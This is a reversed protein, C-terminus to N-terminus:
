PCATLSKLLFDISAERKPKIREMVDPYAVPAKLLVDEVTRGSGVLRDGLGLGTMLNGIKNARYPTSFMAFNKRYLISLIMGHYMSTIINGAHAFYGLWEFPGLTTMNVDSWSNRFGVSILKKGTVRKYDLVQSVMAKDFGGYVLVYNEEKPQIAFSLLDVLFTPDLVIDAPRNCLESIVRASNEDRVSIYSFRQFDNRLEAPVAKSDVISGFSAAYSLIRGANLARSFYVPDCGILSTSCNWVEDSGIVIGDFRMKSLQSKWFMRRTLHLHRQQAIRFKVIRSINNFLEGQRYAQCNLFCRYERVTFGFNKYHIVRCDVGQQELFTQLALVQFFAGYNIGDHYTLIGVKM